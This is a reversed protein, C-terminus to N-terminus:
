HWEIDEIMNKKMIEEKLNQYEVTLNHCYKEIIMCAEDGFKLLLHDIIETLQKSNPHRILPCKTCNGDCRKPLNEMYCFTLIGLFSTM